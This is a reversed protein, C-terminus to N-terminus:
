AGIHWDTNEAILSFFLCPRIKSEWLTKRQPLWYSVRLLILWFIIDPGSNLGSHGVNPSFPPCECSCCSEGWVRLTHQMGRLCYKVRKNIKEPFSFTQGLSDLKPDPVPCLLGLGHLFSLSQESEFTHQLVLFPSRPHTSGGGFIGSPLNFGWPYSFIPLFIILAISQTNAPFLNCWCRCSRLQSFATLDLLTRTNVIDYFIENM